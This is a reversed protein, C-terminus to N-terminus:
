IGKLFVESFPDSEMAINDSLLFCERDLLNSLKLLTYAYIQTSFFYCSSDYVEFFGSTQTLFYSTIILSCSLKWLLLPKPTKPLL